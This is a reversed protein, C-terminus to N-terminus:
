PAALESTLEVKGRGRGRAKPPPNKKELILVIEGDGEATKNYNNPMDASQVDRVKAGVGRAIERAAEELPYSQNGIQLAFVGGPRLAAMTKAILVSFFGKVWDDFSKYTRWSSEEGGYKEVDYYPPSTFAFDVEDPKGFAVREFPKWTVLAIKPEALLVNLDGFLRQVGQVTRKDTDFGRYANAHSLMFGVMRGGWGHCPDLVTGGRPCHENILDRALMAPFEQAIRHGHIALGANFFWKMSPQNQSVFRIGSIISPDKAAKAFVESIPFKDGNTFFRHPTYALTGAAPFPANFYLSRLFAVQCAGKTLGPILGGDKIREVEHAWDACLVRWADDWKGAEKETLEREEGEEPATIDELEYGTITLDYEAAQLEALELRLLDYNWEGMETLKNDTIVYARKQSESLGKATRVPVREIGAVKAAQARAHGALIMGKEDILLPASIGFEKMSRVIAAIQKPPHTKPNRGYPKLGSLKRVSDTWTVAM